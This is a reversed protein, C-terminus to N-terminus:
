LSLAWHASLTYGKQHYVALASQSHKLIQTSLFYLLLLLLCVQVPLLILIQLRTLKNCPYDFDRRALCRSM